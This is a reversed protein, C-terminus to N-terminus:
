MAKYLKFFLSPWFVRTGLAGMGMAM